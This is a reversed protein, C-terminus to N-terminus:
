INNSEAIRHLVIIFISYVCSFLLGVVFVQRYVKGIHEFNLSMFGRSEFRDANEEKSCRLWGKETDETFKCGSKSGRIGAPLEENAKTCMSRFADVFEKAKSDDMDEKARVAM